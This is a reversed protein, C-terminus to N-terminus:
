FKKETITKDQLIQDKDYVNGIDEMAVVNLQNNIM